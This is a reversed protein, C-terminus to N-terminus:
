NIRVVNGFRRQAEHGLRKMERENLRAAIPSAVVPVLRGLTSFGHRLAFMKALAGLVRPSSRLLDETGHARGIVSLLADEGAQGELPTDYAEATSVVLAIQCYAFLLLNLPVGVFGIAGTLGGEIAAVKVWRVLM